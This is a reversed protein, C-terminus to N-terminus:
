SKGGEGKAGSGEGRVFPRDTEAWRDPSFAADYAKDVPRGKALDGLFQKFHAIGRRRILAGVVLRAEVYARWVDERNSPKSFHSDLWKLPVWGSGSAVAEELRREEASWPRGAEQLQAFGEHVWTPLAPGYAHHLFAHALEHAIMMPALDGAVERELLRLRGDYFGLAWDRQYYTRRMGRETYVIVTISSPGGGLAGALATYAAELRQGLAALDAAGSHSLRIDFHETHQSTFGQEIAADRQAQAIRDVLARREPAPLGGSARKWYAIADSFNSRQFYAVDGLRALAVSNDPDYTAAEMLLSEAKAGGGTQELQVAWDILIGSLNKRVLADDPNVKVARRLYGVADDWRGQRAARIGQNNLESAVAENSPAEGAWVAAARLTSLGVLLALRRGGPSRM